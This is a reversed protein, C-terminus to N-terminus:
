DEVKLRLANGTSWDVSWLGRNSDFALGRPEAWESPLEAGDEKDATSFRRLERNRSDVTFLSGDAPDFDLGSPKPGPALRHSVVRQNGLDIGYIASSYGAQVALYLLGDHWAIDGIVADVVLLSTGYDGFDLSDPDMVLIEQETDSDVRFVKCNSRDAVILNDGDWSIAADRASVSPLPPAPSLSRERAGSYRLLKKTTDGYTWIESDRVLVTQSREQLAFRREVTVKM